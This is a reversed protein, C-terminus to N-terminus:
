AEIYDVLVIGLPTDASAWGLQVCTARRAGKRWPAMEEPEDHEELKLHRRLMAWAKAETEACVVFGQYHGKGINQDGEDLSVKFLLPELEYDADSM